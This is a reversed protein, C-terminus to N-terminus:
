QDRAEESARGASGSESGLQDSGVGLQAGVSGGRGRSKSNITQEKISREKLLSDTDIESPSDIWRYGGPLKAFQDETLLDKLLRVYKRNLEERAAFLERTPDAKPEVPQNAMRRAFDQARDQAEQPEYSRLAALLHHNISSLESLYGAELQIIAIMIEPTLDDLDRAAKFIRQVPTERYIRPYARDLAAARFRVAVDEPMATAIQEIYQDNVNRVQVQRQIQQHLANLRKQYDEEELALLVPNDKGVLPEDRMRLAQDLAIEYAELVPQLQATLRADLNLDRVADLLNTSEGSLRGRHLHRERYLRRQVSPWQVLQDETLVVEVNGLFQQGLLNKEAGWDRFPTFVLRLIRNKDGAQLDGRMDEFRQKMRAVGDEFSAYYDDYLTNIIIRQAEDLKLMQNM